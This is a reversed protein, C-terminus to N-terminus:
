ALGLNSEHRYVQGLNAFLSINLQTKKFHQFCKLPGNASYIFSGSLIHFPLHGNATYYSPLNSRPVYPAGNKKTHTVEAGVYVVLDQQYLSKILLLSPKAWKGAM